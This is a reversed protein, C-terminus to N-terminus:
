LEEAFSGIFTNGRIEASKSSVVIPRTIRYCGDVLRGSAGADFLAQLAETDDHVGDGYLKPEADARPLAPAVAAAAITLLFTRRKM